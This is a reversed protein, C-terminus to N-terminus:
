MATFVEERLHNDKRIKDRGFGTPNPLRGLEVQVVRTGLDTATSGAEGAAHQVGQLAGRDSFHLM